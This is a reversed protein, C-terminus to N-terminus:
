NTIKYRISEILSVINSYETKKIYIFSIVPLINFYEIYFYKSYRKQLEKLIKNEMGIVDINGNNDISDIIHKKYRGPIKNMKNKIEASTFQIMYIIELYKVPIAGKINMFYERIDDFTKNYFIKTRFAWLINQWNIEEIILKKIKEREYNSFQKTSDLLKSYYNKDIYNEIFLADKDNNILKILGKFITKKLIKIINEKKSIDLTYIMKYDLTNKLDIEFLDSIQQKKQYYANILYKLNDIEYRLILNNILPNKYEFYKSINNIENFIKVKIKKELESHILLPTVKKMEDPLLTKYLNEISKIKKLSEFNEGIISKSHKAHLKALLYDYKSM